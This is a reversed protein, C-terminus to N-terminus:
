PSFQRVEDSAKPRLPKGHGSLMIDFDYRKLKEISRAAEKPDLTFKPPPGQVKGDIYRLIDGTFLVKKAADYLAISGPTHGPIHIVTLGSVSDNENLIIDPRVSKARFFPSLFRFMIGIGGKPYPMKKAGSLYDADGTHIAVTAGTSKKLHAL